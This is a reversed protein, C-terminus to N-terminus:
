QKGICPNAQIKITKGLNAFIIIFMMDQHQAGHSTDNKLLNPCNPFDCYAALMGTCTWCTAFEEWSMELSELPIQELCECVQDVQIQISAAVHISLYIRPTVFM